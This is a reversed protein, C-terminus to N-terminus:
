QGVRAENQARSGAARASAESGGKALWADAEVVLIRRAKGRGVHPMGLACYRTVTKPAYGRASAFASVKMRRPEPESAGPVLPAHRQAAGAADLARDLVTDVLQYLEARLASMNLATM